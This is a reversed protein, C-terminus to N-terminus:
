RRRPARSFLWKRRPPQSSVIPPAAPLEAGAVIAAPVTESLWRAREPGVLEATASVGARLNTVPRWSSARHGDSAIVHALEDTLLQRALRMSGRVDAGLLSDANVQLLVGSEVLSRLPTPDRQFGGNREPHALTIRFGRSQLQHLFRELGIARAFPTEILLDTGRQGYSALALQEDSAELAWPIAVEAGPVLELQIQERALAESLWKCRGAIEEVRVDPFGPHLHPTAAITVIGAEVAARAM